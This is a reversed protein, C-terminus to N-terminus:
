LVHGVHRKSERPIRRSPTRIRHPTTCATRTTRVGSVFEEQPTSTSSVLRADSQVGRSDAAPVPEFPPAITRTVSMM